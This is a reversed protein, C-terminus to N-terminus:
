ASQSGNKAYPAQQSAHRGLLLTSTDGLLLPEPGIFM